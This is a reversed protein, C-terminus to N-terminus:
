KSSNQFLSEFMPDTEGFEILFHENYQPFAKALNRARMEKLYKTFPKLGLNQIQARSFQLCLLVFSATGLVPEMWNWTWAGVELWTDLESPEPIDMTVFKRNFWMATDVDFVM